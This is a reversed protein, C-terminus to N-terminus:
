VGVKPRRDHHERQRAQRRPLAHNRAVRQHLARAPVSRSPTRRRRDLPLQGPRRDGVSTFPTLLTNLHCTDKSRSREQEPRQKHVDMGVCILAHPVCTATANKPQQTTATTTTQTGHGRNDLMLPPRMVASSNTTTTQLVMGATILTLSMSSFYVILVYM